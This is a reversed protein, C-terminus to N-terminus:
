GPLEAPLLPEYKPPAADDWDDLGGLDEKGSGALSYSPYMTPHLAVRTKGSPIIMTNGNRPLRSIYQREIEDDVLRRFQRHNRFYLMM